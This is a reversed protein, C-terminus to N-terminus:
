AEIEEFTAQIRHRNTIDIVDAYYKSQKVFIEVNYRRNCDPCRHPVIGKGIMDILRKAMTNESPLRKSNMLVSIEKNCIPCTFKINVQEATIETYEM